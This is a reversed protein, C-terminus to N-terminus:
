VKQSGDYALYFRLSYNYLTNLEINLFVQIGYKLNAYIKKLFTNIEM